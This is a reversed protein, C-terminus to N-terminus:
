RVLGKANELYEANLKNIDVSGIVKVSDTDCYLLKCNGDPQKTQQKCFDIARQLQLRAYSTTYVGWQYPFSAMRLAKKIEDETMSDYSSRLYDGHNYKIDANIPNTVSCGYIANLLAKTKGYLYEEDETTAGKLATKQTYYNKIVDCYEKPM